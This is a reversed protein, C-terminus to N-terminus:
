KRLTKKRYRKKRELAEIEEETYNNKPRGRSKTITGEIVKNKYEESSRKPPAKDVIDKHTQLRNNYKELVIELQQKDKENLNDFIMKDHVYEM